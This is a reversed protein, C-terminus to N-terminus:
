LYDSLRLQSLRSYVQFTAQLAAQHNSVETAASALDTKIVQETVGKLYLKMQNHRENIQTVNIISNNIRGRASNLGEQGQQILDIAAALGADNSTKDAEVAKHYAAVIQQLAKDDARVPFEYTLREEVRFVVNEKSGTYYGDDVVGPSVPTKFINEIPATGTDSGGFLYRGESTTNMEIQLSQMFNDMLQKFNLSSSVNSRRTVMLNEMEDAINIAQELAKDGISLRSKNVENSQIFQGLQRQRGELLTFREVEGNLKEFNNAKFGSSIQTQLDALKTFQDNVDRFTSNFLAFNSIRSIVM